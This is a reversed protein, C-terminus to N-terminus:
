NHRTDASGPVAGTKKQLMYKKYKLLGRKLHKNSQNKGRVSFFFVPTGTLAGKLFHFYFLQFDVFAEKMM